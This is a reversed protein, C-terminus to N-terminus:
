GEGIALARQQEIEISRNLPQRQIQGVMGCGHLQRRHIVIQEPAPGVYLTLGAGRRTIGRRLPISFDAHDADTRGTLLQSGKGYVMSGAHGPHPMAAQMLGTTRAIPRM